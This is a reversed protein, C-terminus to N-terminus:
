VLDIPQRARMLQRVHKIHLYHAWTIPVHETDAPNWRRITSRSLGLVRGLRTQWVNPGFMAEGHEVIWEWTAPPTGELPDIKM